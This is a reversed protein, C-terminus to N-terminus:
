KRRYTSMYCPILVNKMEKREEWWLLLLHYGELERETCSFLLLM